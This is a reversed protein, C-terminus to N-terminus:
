YCKEGVAEPLDCFHKTMEPVVGGPTIHSTEYDSYNLSKYLQSNNQQRSMSVTVLVVLFVFCDTNFKCTQLGQPSGM